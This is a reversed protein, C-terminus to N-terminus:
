RAPCRYLVWELPLVVAQAERVRGAYNLLSGTRAEPDVFRFYFTQSCVLYDPPSYGNFMPNGTKAMYRGVARATKERQYRLLDEYFGPVPDLAPTMCAARGRITERLLRGALHSEMDRVATETLPHGAAACVEQIEAPTLSEYRPGAELILLEGPYADLFSKRVPAVSQVPMGTYFTLTLHHNPTAYIRTGPRLDLGRLHEIVDFTSPTGAADRGPWITVQGAAAIALVFLAPALVTAHRPTVVRAVAAFCMAGFLFGPVLITLVLRGYFYSVAPMLFVFALAGIAAWAALFLFAPAYDAFPRALRAPLRDGLVWAAVLCLLTLSALLSFPGLQEVFAWVDPPSLLSRARPLDRAAGAFGTLVVWPVTGVVLIAAFAALKAAARPHRFLLPVGLGCAACTALFSLAHTHFLLVFAAAGFLFDRWMGRRLMLCALVCCCATLALTASYYRAQRAFEVVPTCVAAAGLAAWAADKGYLERGAFFIAGLFVAGFCVAPVRGAVTRRRMEEPSHRVGLAAPDEDPQVGAVAFSAAIAYLPLWGHYVTVGRESYSTDKFEYEASEPWPRTLTNEYLPLGLYHDVPLGHQLITLANIGSEAEDVWFPRAGLDWARLFIGYALVLLFLAGQWGPRALGALQDAARECSPHCM